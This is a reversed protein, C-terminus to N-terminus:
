GSELASRHISVYRLRCSTNSNRRAPVSDAADSPFLLIFPFRVNWGLVRRRLFVCPKRTRMDVLFPRITNFRRRALPRFRNVTASSRHHGTRPTDRASRAERHSSSHARLRQRTSVANLTPGIELPAVLAAQSQLATEHCDKHYRGTRRDRPQADARRLLQSGGNRAVPGLTEGTFEESAVRNRCSDINDDYRPPFNEICREAAKLGVIECEEGPSLASVWAGCSPRM